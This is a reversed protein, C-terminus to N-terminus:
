ESFLQSRVHNPEKLRDAGQRDRNRAWHKHADQRRRTGRELVSGGHTLMRVSAIIGVSGGDCGV